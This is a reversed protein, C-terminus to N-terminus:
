LYDRQSRICGVGMACIRHGALAWRCRVLVRGKGVKPVPLNGRM